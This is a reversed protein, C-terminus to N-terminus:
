STCSGRQPFKGRLIRPKGSFREIPFPPKGGIKQKTSPSPTGCARCALSGWFNPVVEFSRFFTTGLMGGKKEPPGDLHPGLNGTRPPSPIRTQRVQSTKVPRLSDAWCVWVSRCAGHLPVKKFAVAWSFPYLKEDGLM